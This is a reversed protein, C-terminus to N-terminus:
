GKLIKLSLPLVDFILNKHLRILSGTVNNLSLIIKLLTLSYMLLWYLSYYYLYTVIGELVNLKVFSMLYSYSFAFVTLTLPNLMARVDSGSPAICTLLLMFAVIIIWLNSYHKNIYTFITINFLAPAVSIVFKGFNKRLFGGRPIHKVHSLPKFEVVKFGFLIAALAHATEHAPAGINYIVSSLRQGFIRNNFINISYQFIRTIVIYVFLMLVVTLFNQVVIEM